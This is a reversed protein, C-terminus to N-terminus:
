IFGVLVALLHFCIIEPTPRIAKVISECYVSSPTAKQRCDDDPENADSKHDPKCAGRIVITLVVVARCLLGISHVTLIITPM